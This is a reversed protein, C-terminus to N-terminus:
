AKEFLPEMLIQREVSSLGMLGPVEALNPVEFTQQKSPVGMSAPMAEFLHASLRCPRSSLLTALIARVVSKVMLLNWMALPPSAVGMSVSGDVTLGNCSLAKAGPNVIEAGSCELNERISAGRFSVEGAARFGQHLLVSGSVRAGDCSLAKHGPCGFMGASAILHGDILANRLSVEGDARFNENFFASGKIKARSCHLAINRPNSFHGSQCELSGGIETETFNMEGDARVSHFYATGAIKAGECSLAKFKADASVGQPGACNFVGTSGILHGSIQANRLSVEGDARFDENFFASGKIKVRSCYLAINGPNSFHGGQCELSNGIEADIFNTAGRVSTGYRLFASGAIRAGSFHLADKGPHIFEGGDCRLDGGIEARQFRVQGEAIFKHDSESIFFVSGGVKMRSCAIAIREAETVEEGEHCMFHGGHCELSGTIEAEVFNVEGEAVFGRRCYVSGDIRARRAEIVSYGRSAESGSVRSGCVHSYDLNITRTRADRLILRGRIVCYELAIPRVNECGTFDLDGDIVAGQIWIGREHVPADECGGLALYRVFASRITRVNEGDGEDIEPLIKAFESGMGKRAAHLLSEEAHTLIGFDGLRRGHALRYEVM